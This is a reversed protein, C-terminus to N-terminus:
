QEPTLSLEAAETRTQDCEGLVLLFHSDEGM